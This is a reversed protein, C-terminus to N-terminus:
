ESSETASGACLDKCGEYEQRTREVSDFAGEKVEIMDAIYQWSASLSNELTNRVWLVGHSVVSATRDRAGMNNEKRSLLFWSRTDVQDAFFTLVQYLTVM